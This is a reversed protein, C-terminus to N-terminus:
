DITEQRKKVEFVNFKIQKGDFEQETPPNNELFDEYVYWEILNPGIYYKNEADTPYTWVTLLYEESDTDYGKSKIYKLLTITDDVCGYDKLLPIFGKGFGGVTMTVDANLGYVYIEDDLTSYLFNDTYYRRDEDTRLSQLFEDSLEYKPFM